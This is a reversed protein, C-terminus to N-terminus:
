HYIRLLVVLIIRDGSLDITFSGSEETLGPNQDRKNDLPHDSQWSPQYFALEQTFKGHSFINSQGPSERLVYKRGLREQEHGPRPSTSHHPERSTSLPFADGLHYM